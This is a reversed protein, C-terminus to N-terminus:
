TKKTDSKDECGISKNQSIQYTILIVYVWNLLFFIFTKNPTNTPIAVNWNYV